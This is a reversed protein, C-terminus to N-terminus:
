NRGLSLVTLENNSSHMYVYTQLREQVGCTWISDAARGERRPGRQAPHPGWFCGGGPLTTQSVPGVVSRVVDRLREHACPHPSFLTVLSLKFISRAAKATSCRVVAEEAQLVAAPLEAAVGVPRSLRAPSGREAMGGACKDVRCCARAPPQQLLAVSSPVPRPARRALRPPLPGESAGASAAGNIDRMQEEKRRIRQLEIHIDHISEELSLLETQLFNLNDKKAVSEWDHAAAGSRWDLKIRTRQATQFDACSDLPTPESDSLAPPAAQAGVGAGCRLAPRAQM